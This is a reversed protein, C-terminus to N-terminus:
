IRFNRDVAALDLRPDGSPRRGHYDANTDISAKGHRLSNRRVANAIKKTTISSMTM